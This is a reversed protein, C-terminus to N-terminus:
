AQRATQAERLLDTIEAAAETVPVGEAAAWEQCLAEWAKRLASSDGEGLAKRWSRATLDRVIECRDLFAGGRLRDLLETRRQRPDSKLEAPSSRLVRRYRPLDAKATLPRLANDPDGEVPVWVTAREVAIEYYQRADTSDFRGTVLGVIRGVGHAPHVVHEDVHYLM